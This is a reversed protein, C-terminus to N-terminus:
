IGAIWATHLKAVSQIRDNPHKACARLIVDYQTDTGKFPERDLSSDSMLVAATRGITFVTTREDFTTFVRGASELLTLPHSETTATAPFPNDPPIM